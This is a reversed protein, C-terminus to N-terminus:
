EWLKPGAGKGAEIAAKRPGYRSQNTLRLSRALSLMASTQRERLALLRSYRKLGDDTKLWEDKFASIERDVAAALDIHTCYSVLLPQIDPTFWDAPLSSVIQHWIAAKAASFGEPPEPRKAELSVVVGQPKRGRQKM